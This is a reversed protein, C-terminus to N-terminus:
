GATFILASPFASQVLSCCGVTRAKCIAIQGGFYAHVGLSSRLELSTRPSEMSAHHRGVLYYARLPLSM